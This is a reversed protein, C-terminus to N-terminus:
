CCVSQISQISQHMLWAWRFWHVQVNIKVQIYLYKDAATLPHTSLIKKWSTNSVSPFVYVSVPMRHMSLVGAQPRWENWPWYLLQKSVDTTQRYMTIQIFIFFFLALNLHSLRWINGYCFFGFSGVLAYVFVYYSFYFWWTAIRTQHGFGRTTQQDKLQCKALTM